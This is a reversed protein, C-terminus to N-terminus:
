LLWEPFPCTSNTLPAFWRWDEERCFYGPWKEGASVLGARYANLYLYLFVPFRDEGPRVRHDYCGRQWRLKAARLVPAMRGKFLRVVESFNQRDCLVILLHLHDPMVAACRVHWAGEIELQHAGAFIMAILFGDALGTARGHTGITLFYEAGSASWRGRRLAEHGRGPIKM